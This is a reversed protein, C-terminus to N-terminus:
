CPQSDHIVRSDQGSSVRGKAYLVLNIRSTEMSRIRALHLSKLIKLM